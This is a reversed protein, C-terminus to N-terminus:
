TKAIKECEALAAKVPKWKNLGKLCKGMVLVMELLKKSQNQEGSCEGCPGECLSAKVEDLYSQLTM